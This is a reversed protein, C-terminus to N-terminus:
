IPSENYPHNRFDFHKRYGHHLQPSCRSCRKMHHSFQRLLHSLCVYKQRQLHSDYKVHIDVISKYLFPPPYSIKTLRLLEPVTPEGPHLNDKHIQFSEALHPNLLALVTLHMVVLIPFLVKWQLKFLLDSSIPYGGRKCRGLIKRSLYLKISCSQTKLATQTWPRRLHILL